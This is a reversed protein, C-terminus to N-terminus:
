VQGYTKVLNCHCLARVTATRLCGKTVALEGFFGGDRLIALMIDEEREANKCLMVQVMGQVMQSDPDIVHVM